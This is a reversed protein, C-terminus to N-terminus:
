KAEEKAEAPAPAEAKAAAKAAKNEAAKALWGKVAPHEKNSEYIAKLVPFDNLYEPPIYDYNGEAVMGVVFHNALDAITLSDGVM